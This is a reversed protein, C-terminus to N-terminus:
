RLALNKADSSREFLIKLAEWIAFPTEKGHLNSVVHDRVGELIIRKSKM